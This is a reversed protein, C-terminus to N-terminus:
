HEWRRQKSSGSNVWSSRRTFHLAAEKIPLLMCRPCVKLKTSPYSVQLRTTTRNSLAAQRLGEMVSVIDDLVCKRDEDGLMCLHSFTYNYGMYNVKMDLVSRHVQLVQEAQLLINGGPKALLIVRGYRGPTHLDSYLHSKSDDLPFLSSALSREIKALSHSPALLTELDTEARYRHLISFGFSLSLVAPVTLFFVPHRSVFLGLSFFFSKLGRHIVQRLMRRRTWIASLGCRRLFCM